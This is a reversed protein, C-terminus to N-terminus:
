DLLVSLGLIFVIREGPLPRSREPGAPHVSVKRSGPARVAPTPHDNQELDGQSLPVVGPSLQGEKGAQGAM